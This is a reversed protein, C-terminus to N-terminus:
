DSEPWKARDALHGASVAFNGRSPTFVGGKVGVCGLSTAQHTAVARPVDLAGGVRPSLPQWQGSRPCAAVKQTVHGNVAM